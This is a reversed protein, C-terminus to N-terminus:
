RSPLTPRARGTPKRRTKPRCATKASSPTTRRLVTDPDRALMFGSDGEFVPGLEHQKVFPTVLFSVRGVAVGHRWGPSPMKKIEGAVLEYRCGDDPMRLLEEATVLTTVSM